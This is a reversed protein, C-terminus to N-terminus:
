SMIFLCKTKQPSVGQPPPGPPGSSAQNSRPPPGLPCSSAQPNQPHGKRSINLVALHFCKPGRDLAGQQSAELLQLSHGETSTHM